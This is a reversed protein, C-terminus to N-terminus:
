ECRLTPFGEKELWDIARQRHPAEKELDMFADSHQQHNDSPVIQHCCEHYILYRLVFQPVNRQSLHPHIAITRTEPYYCAAPVARVTRVSANYMEAYRQWDGRTRKLIHCLALQSDAHGSEALPRLLTLAEELKRRQILGLAQRFVYRNEESLQYDYPTERVSVTGRPVQWCVSAQIRGKFHKKNVAQFCKELLEQAQDAPATELTEPTPLDANLSEIMM